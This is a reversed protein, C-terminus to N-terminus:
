QVRNVMEVRDALLTITVTPSEHLSPAPVVIGRTYFPLVEGDITIRPAGREDQDVRILKAMRWQPAPARGGDAPREDELQDSM